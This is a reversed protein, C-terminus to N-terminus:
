KASTEKVIIYGDKVLEEWLVWTRDWHKATSKGKLEVAKKKLAKGSYYSQSLYVVTSLLDIVKADEAGLKQILAISRKSLKEFRVDDDESTLKLLKILATDHDDIFTIDLWKWDTGRDIDTALTVSVVKYFQFEFDQDFDEGAVQLIYLMQSFQVVTLVKFDNDPLNELIQRIKGLRKILNMNRMKAKPRKGLSPKAGLLRVKVYWEIDYKVNSNANDLM